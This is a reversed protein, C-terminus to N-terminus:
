ESRARWIGQAGRWFRVRESRVRSGGLRYSVECVVAESLADCAVVDMESIQAVTPPSNASHPLPRSGGSQPIAPTLAIRTGQSDTRPLDPAIPRTLIQQLRYADQLAAGAEAATPLNAEPSCASLALAAGLLILTRM